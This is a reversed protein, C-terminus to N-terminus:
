IVTMKGKLQEIAKQIKLENVSDLASTAEDLILISPKKLIARALVLRQREGGSLKIGRDGIITDLGNPLSHVFEAASSFELAAWMDEDTASPEIMVLNDRITGHFLFPDQPVYSISNRLILFDYDTLGKGDILINGKEPKILGMLIDILTSKGAGSKGVIATMKNAPINIKINNLTFKSHERNYRFYVDSCELSHNLKMRQTVKGTVSLLGSLDESKQCDEQLDIIKQVAPLASSINELSSQIGTFRPWLRSFIVIILLLSAGYSQFLKFSGYIFLAIMISSFVKYIFKSNSRSKASEFREIAVKESWNSLWNFQSNELLNSKIDKVGNFHDYIGALYSQSLENMVTGLQRSKRIFRRSLISVFLGCVLVLLTMKFSVFMALVVQIATFVLSALFQLLLFTSNTVIGLESTLSNVLDSKRRKIFFEWNAKLLSEYLELRINNIFGTHIRIDRLGVNRSVLSQTIVLTLYVFLIILLAEEKPIEVFFNLMHFFPINPLNLDVLGIISLLPILLFIGIGDLLGMLMSLALNIYLIRGSYNHLKKLYFLLSAIKM